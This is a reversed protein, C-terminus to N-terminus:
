CGAYIVWGKTKKRADPTEPIKERFMLVDTLKAM